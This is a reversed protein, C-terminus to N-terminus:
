GKKRGIRKRKRGEGAKREGGRKRGIRKKQGEGGRIEAMERGEMKKGMKKDEERRGKRGMEKKKIWNKR